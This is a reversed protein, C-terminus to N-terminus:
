LWVTRVFYRYTVNRDENLFRTLAVAEVPDQEAAVFTPFEDPFTLNQKLILYVCSPNISM